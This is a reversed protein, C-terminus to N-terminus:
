KVTPEEAGAVQTGLLKQTHLQEFKMLSPGKSFNAVENDQRLEFGILLGQELDLQFTGFPQRRLLQMQLDTNNVPTLVKRKMEITAIGDAVSKLEFQEQLRIKEKLITGPQSLEVFIDEKWTDGVAVSEDPLKLLVDVSKPDLKEEQLPSTAEIVQGTPTLKVQMNPRGLISLLGLLKAPPEEGSRSDFVSKEGNEEIDFVAWDLQLELTAVGAEDVSLVKMSKGSTQYAHPKDIADGLQVTLDDKLTEEFQIIQDPFFNYRLSYKEQAASFNTALAFVSITSVVLLRSNFLTM